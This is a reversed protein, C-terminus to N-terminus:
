VVLWPLSVLPYLTSNTQNRNSEPNLWNAILSLFIFKETCAPQITSLAVKLLIETVDHHDTKNTSSVPTGPSFWWGTAHWQCVKEYLTKDLVSQWIWSGYSWSWSPGRETCPYKVSHFIVKWCPISIKLSFFQFVLHCL